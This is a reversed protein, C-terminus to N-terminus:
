LQHGVGGQEIASPMMQILMEHTLAARRSFCLTKLLSSRRRQELTAMLTHGPEGGWHLGEAHSGLCCGWRLLGGRLM